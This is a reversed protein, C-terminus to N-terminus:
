QVEHQHGKSKTVVPTLMAAKAANAGTVCHLVLEGAANRTMVSYSISDEDLFAQKVGNSQMTAVNAPPAGSVRRENNAAARQAARLDNLQKAEAATPNRFEGTQPDKFVTQGVQEAAFASSCLAMAALAVVHRIPFEAIHM